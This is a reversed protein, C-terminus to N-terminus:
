PQKYIAIRSLIFHLTDDHLFQHIDSHNIFMSRGRKIRCFTGIKRDEELKDWVEESTCTANEGGQQHILEITYSARAPWKLQNDYEGPMSWIGVNISKGLGSKNGNADVGICFKYGCVHTYMAPSKWSNIVSKAKEKSFNKMIFRRNLGIMCTLNSVREEQIADSQRLTKELQKLKCDYSDTVDHQLKKLDNTMMKLETFQVEYEDLKKHQEEIKMEQEVIKMKLMEEAEKHKKDQELLQQQLQEKTEVALSATLTLHKQSNQRAHEDQDERIFRSDCGVSSFECEVEELRCIKMHDEMVERECSVGCMNPCKLPVYKCEPLHTDVVEEYTAKFSCHQCVHPRKTCEQAVHQDVKNKPVTQLCNLPCKTDVYQCNDLHPDLHTYLQDLTGSWVCGREKMSCHVQLGNIKKQVKVHKLVTFEKVGCVPCPQGQEQTDAICTQCFSEGCCDTITLRRAVLTCKKCCFDEPVPAIFECTYGQLLTTSASMKNNIIM